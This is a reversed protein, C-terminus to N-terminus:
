YRNFGSKVLCFVTLLFYWTVDARHVSRDLLRADSDGARGGPHCRSLASACHGITIGQRLASVVQSIDSRLAVCASPANIPTSGSNTEASTEDRTSTSAGRLVRLSGM